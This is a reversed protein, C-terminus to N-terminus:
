RIAAARKAPVHSEYATALREYAPGLVEKISRPEIPPLMGTEAESRRLVMYKGISVYPRYHTELYDKLAYYYVPAFWFYFVHDHQIVAYRAKTREMDMIVRAEDAHDLWGPFFYSDRTPSPRGSAYSVFDLAPFTLVPEDPATNEELFRIVNSLDDYREAVGANRM